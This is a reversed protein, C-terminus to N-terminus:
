SKKEEEKNNLEAIYDIVEKKETSNLLRDLHTQNQMLGMLTQLMSLQTHPQNLGLLFIIKAQTTQNKDDMRQFEIPKKNTIIAVFEHLVCESDTHPIAAGITELQIGTPYEEERAQVRQLFDERVLGQKFTSQYVDEFLEEKSQYDKQLFLLSEQVLDNLELQRVKM